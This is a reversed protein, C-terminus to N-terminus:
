PKTFFALAAIGAMPWHTAGREVRVFQALADLLQAGHLEPELLVGAHDAGGDLRELHLAHRQGRQLGHVHLHFVQALGHLDAQRHQVVRATVIWRRRRGRTRRERRGQRRAQGGELGLGGGLLLGVVLAVLGGGGRALGGTAGRGTGHVRHLPPARQGLLEGLQGGVRHLVHGRRGGRGGLSRLHGLRRRRGLGLGAGAGGRRAGVRARRRGRRPWWAAVCCCCSSNACCCCCRSPCPCPCTRRSRGRSIWARHRPHKGAGCRVERAGCPRGVM